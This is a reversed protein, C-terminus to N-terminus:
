AAKQAALIENVMKLGVLHAHCEWSVEMGIDGMESIDGFVDYGHDQLWMCWEFETSLNNFGGLETFKKETDEEEAEEFRWRINEKAHDSVWHKSGYGHQSARCKEAFYGLSCGALFELNVKDGWMYVAEYCDGFVTLVNRIIIYNIRYIGTGPKGFVIYRIGDNEKDALIQHDKFRERIEAEEIKRKSM